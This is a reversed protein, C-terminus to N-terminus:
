APVAAARELVLRAFADGLRAGFDNAAEMHAAMEGEIRGRFGPYDADLDGRHTAIWHRVTGTRVEPHFQVGYTTRGLRFAQEPCDSSTALRVAGPPLDLADHHWQMLRLEAPAHAFLPDSAAEPLFRVPPGFGIEVVRNPRVPAPNAPDAFARALLQAGLCVGLVPREAAACARMLGVLRAYYPHGADDMASQPGGLVIMGALGDISAPLPEGVVPRVTRLEAGAAAVREGLIVPGEDAHNRVVLVHM